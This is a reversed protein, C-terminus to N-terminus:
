LKDRNIEIKDRLQQEADEGRKARVHLRIHCKECLPALNNLTYALEPNDVLRKIHHVHVAPANFCYSCMGSFANMSIGRVKSWRAGTRIKCAANYEPSLPKNAITRGGTYDFFKSTMQKSALRKM